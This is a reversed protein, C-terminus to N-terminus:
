EGKQPMVKEGSNLKNRLAQIAQISRGLKKALERDPISHEMVMELEKITYRSRRNVDGETGRKYYDLKSKMRDSKFKEIDREKLKAKYNKQYERIHEVFEPDQKKKHYWKRQYEKRKRLFEPDNKKSELYKKQYENHKRRQEETM